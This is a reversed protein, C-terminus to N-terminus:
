FLPNAATIPFILLLIIAKICSFTQLFVHKCFFVQVSKKIINFSENDTHSSKLNSKVSIKFSYNTTPLYLLLASLTPPTHNLTESSIVSTIHTDSEPGTTIHNVKQVKQSQPLFNLICQLFVKSVMATLFTLDHQLDNIYKTAINSNKLCNESVQNNRM